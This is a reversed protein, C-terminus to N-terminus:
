EGHLSAIHEARKRAAIEKSVESCMAFAKTFTETALREELSLLPIMYGKTSRGQAELEEMRKERRADREAAKRTREALKAAKSAATSAEKASAKAAKASIREAKAAERAAKGASNDRVKPAKAGRLEALQVNVAKLDKLISAQSAKAESFAKQAPTSVAKLSKLAKNADRELQVMPRLEKLKTNVAKLEVLIALQKDKVERYTTM